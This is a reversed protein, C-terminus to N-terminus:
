PETRSTVYHIRDVSGNNVASHKITADMEYVGLDELHQWDDGHRSLADPNTQLVHHTRIGHDRHYHLSGGPCIKIFMFGSEVKCVWYDSGDSTKHKWDGTQALLDQREEETIEGIREYM